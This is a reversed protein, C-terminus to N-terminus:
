QKGPTNNRTNEHCIDQRACRAHARAAVIEEVARLRAHIVFGDERRHVERSAIANSLGDFTDESSNSADSTASESGADTLTAADVGPCEREQVSGEGMVTPSVNGQVSVTIPLEPVLRAPLAIKLALGAPETEKEGPLQVNEPSVRPVHAM